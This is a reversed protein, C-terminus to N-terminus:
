AYYVGNDSKDSKWGARIEKDRWAIILSILLAQSPAPLFQRKGHCMANIKKGQGHVELQRNKASGCAVADKILSMGNDIDLM